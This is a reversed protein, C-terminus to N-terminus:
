LRFLQVPHKEKNDLDYGPQGLLTVTENFTFDKPRSLLRRLLKEKKSM